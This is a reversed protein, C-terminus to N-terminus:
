QAAAGCASPFGRRQAGQIEVHGLQVTGDLAVRQLVLLQHDADLLDQGAYGPPDGHGPRTAPPTQPTGMNSHSLFVFSRDSPM